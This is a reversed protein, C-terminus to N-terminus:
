AVRLGINPECLQALVSFVGPFKTEELSILLIVTTPSMVPESYFNDRRMENKTYKNIRWGEPRSM